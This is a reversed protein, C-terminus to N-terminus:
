RTEILPSTRLCLLEKPDLKPRDKWRLKPKGRRRSCDVIIPKVRRVHTLHPRKNVHVFWRLRGKRMKIIITVVQLERRIVENPTVDLTTKGCTWRLMRMEVVERNAQTKIVPWCELGYLMTPRIAVRYFIEKLKLPVSKDCLIITAVRWKLWNAQIRHTVDHAIRGSKHIVYGLYEFSEKPQLIQDGTRIKAEEASENRKLRGNLGKPIKLVLVIDDAKVMFYEKNGM